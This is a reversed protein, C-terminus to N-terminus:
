ASRESLDDALWRPGTGRTRAPELRVPIPEPLSAWGFKQIVDNSEIAARGDDLSWTIHYVGGGPRDTAGNIKVVMAEVGAEDDVRGVIEGIRDEPLPATAAVHAKLTVHDAIIKPYAPELQALLERRQAPSLTWGITIDDGQSADEM